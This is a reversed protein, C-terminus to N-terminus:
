HKIFLDQKMISLVNAALILWLTTLFSLEHQFFGEM